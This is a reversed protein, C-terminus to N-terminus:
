APPEPTIFLEYIEVGLVVAIKEINEFSPANIGREVLGVFDVSLDLAEAFVEQTMGRRKRLQKVRRGFRIRLSEAL